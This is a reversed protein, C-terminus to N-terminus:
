QGTILENIAKQHRQKVLQFEKQIINKYKKSGMGEHIRYRVLPVNFYHFDYTQIVRLWMEYDHTYPLTEDFLGVTSFVDMKMMVTCGNIMCAKLLNECMTAKNPFSSGIPGRIPKNRSNIHIVPTYSVTARKRKMFNLQMKVKNPKYVDDSSLWSFYTGTAKRIGMNLASATGGNAKKFYKIKKFFSKVKNLHKTSGDDVVIIETYQYTQNLASQIAQDIYPCNYFPIIISVKDM